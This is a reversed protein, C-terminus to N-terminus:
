IQEIHINGHLDLKMNQVYKLSIEYGSAHIYFPASKILAGAIHSM